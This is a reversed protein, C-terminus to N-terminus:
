ITKVYDKGNFFLVEIDEITASLAENTVFRLVPDIPYANGDKIEFRFFIYKGNKNSTKVYSYGASFLSPFFRLEFDSQSTLKMKFCYKGKKYNTLTNFNFIIRKNPSNPIVTYTNGSVGLGQIASANKIPISECNKVEFNNKFSKVYSEGEILKYCNDGEYIGQINEVCYTTGTTINFYNMDEFESIEVTNGYTGSDFDLIGYRIGARNFIFSNRNSEVKFKSNVFPVNSAGQSHIDNNYFKNNDGKVIFWNFRDYKPEPLLAYYDMREFRNNEYTGNKGVLVPGSAPEIDINTVVVNASNELDLSSNHIWGGDIKIGSSQFEGASTEKAISIAYGRNFIEENPNTPSNKEDVAYFTNLKSYHCGQYEINKKFGAVYFNTFNTVFCNILRLGVGNNRAVDSIAYIQIDNIFVGGFGTNTFPNGGWLPQITITLETDGLIRSVKNGKGQFKIGPKNLILNRVLFEGKPFIVTGGFMRDMSDCAKKVYVTDDSIGDGKAGFWSVNVEGNRIVNAFLGSTLIVATGDDASSIIRKHNAGDGKVYYGLVEVIDGIKYKANSKLSEITDEVMAKSYDTVNRVVNMNDKYYLEDTDTSLVIEYPNVKDLNNMIQQKTGYTHSVKDYGFEDLIVTGM